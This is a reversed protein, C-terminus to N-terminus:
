KGLMSCGEDLSLHGFGKLRWPRSGRGCSVTFLQESEYRFIWRGGGYTRILLLPVRPTAWFRFASTANELHRFVSAECSLKSGVWEEDLRRCLRVDSGEIDVIPTWETVDKDSLRVLSDSRRSYALFKTTLEVFGDWEVSLTMPISYIAHLEFETTESMPVKIVVKVGRESPFARIKSARLAWDM